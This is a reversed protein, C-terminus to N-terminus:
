RRAVLRELANRLRQGVALGLVGAPADLRSIVGREWTDM